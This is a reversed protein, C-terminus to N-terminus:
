VRAAPPRAGSLLGNKSLLSRMSAGVDRCKAEGTTITNRAIFLIDYGQLLSSELGRYSERMLRRARNRKVSNGVKKSALFAKRNFGLRNKRFFLVVYKGGTSRGKNYLASFDRKDRLVDPKLM